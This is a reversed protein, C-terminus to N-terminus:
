KGRNEEIYKKVRNKDYHNSGTCVYQFDCRCCYHWDERYPCKQMAEYDDKLKHPRSDRQAKKELLTKLKAKISLCLWDQEPMSKLIESIEDETLEVQILDNRAQM